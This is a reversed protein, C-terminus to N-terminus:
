LGGPADPSEALLWSQSGCWRPSATGREEIARTVAELGGGTGRHCPRAGSSCDGLIRRDTRSPAVRWSRMGPERRPVRRARLSESRRM